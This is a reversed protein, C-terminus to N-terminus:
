EYRRVNAAGLGSNLAGYLLEGVVVAPLAVPGEQRFRALAQPNGNLVAIAINSDLGARVGIM